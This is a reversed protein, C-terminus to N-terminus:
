WSTQTCPTPHSVQWRMSLPATRAGLNQSSVMYQRGPTLILAGRKAVMARTLHAPVCIAESPVPTWTSARVHISFRKTKNSHGAVNQAARFARSAALSAQAYVHGGYASIGSKFNKLGLEIALPILDEGTIWVKRRSMYRKIVKEDDAVKDPLPILSMAEQFTLRGHGEKVTTASPLTM